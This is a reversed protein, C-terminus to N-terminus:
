AVWDEASAQKEEGSDGMLRRRQPWALHRGNEFYARAVRGITWTGAAALAGSAAWGLVPVVKTLQQALVRMGASGILTVILERSYRDGVPVGYAAAIRLVLRMQILAQFPIDLLPVPEVGALGSLAAARQTARDVAVTRWAPVERGLATTLHPCADVICPLLKGTVNLGTRAAIPVLPHALQRSLQDVVQPDSLQDCKNMTVILPKAMSRVRALQEAEWSRLGTDGDLVFVILDAHQMALWDMAAHAAERNVRVDHLTLLVFLGFDEVVGADGGASDVGVEADIGEDSHRVSNRTSDLGKLHQVLTSKGCGQAGVIVIRARSERDVEDKVHDWDLASFLTSFGLGQEPAAQAVSTLWEQFRDRDRKTLRPMRVGSGKLRGFKSTINKLEDFM